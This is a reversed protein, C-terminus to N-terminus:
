DATKQRLRERLRKEIQAPDLEKSKLEEEARRRIEDLPRAPLDGIAGRLSELLTAPLTGGGAALAARGLTQLVTGLIQGATAGGEATGVNELEITPLAFSRENGGLLDSRFRVTADVIRLRQILFKKGSTKAPGPGRSRSLNDMLASLNNRTGLFELSLDPKVITVEGVHVEDRLLERPRLSADIRDFSVARPESFGRPNDVELRGLTATGSWRVSARDLRVPVQLASSASKEVQSRVIPDLFLALAALLLLPLAIVLAAAVFLKKM